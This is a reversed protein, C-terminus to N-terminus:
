VQGFAIETTSSIAGIRLCKGARRPTEGKARIITRSPKRAILLEEFQASRLRALGAGFRPHPIRPRSVPVKEPEGM